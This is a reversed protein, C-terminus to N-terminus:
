RPMLQVAAQGCNGIMRLHILKVPIVNVQEKLEKNKTFKKM